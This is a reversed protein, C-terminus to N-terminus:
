DGAKIERIQARTIARATAPRALGRTVGLRRELHALVGVFVCFYCLGLASFLSQLPALLVKGNPSAPANM